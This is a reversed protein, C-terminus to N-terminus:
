TSLLIKLLKDWGTPQKAQPMGASSGVPQQTPGPRLSFIAGKWSPECQRRRHGQGWLSGCSGRGRGSVRWYQCTSQPWDRILDNSKEGPDKYGQSGTHVRWSHPKQKGWDQPIGTILGEHVEFGSKRPIGVGMALGVPQSAQHPTWFKWDEPLVETTYNNELRHTAAQNSKMVTTGRESDQKPKKKPHLTHPKSTENLLPSSMNKEAM